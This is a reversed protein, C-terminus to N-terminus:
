IGLLTILMVGGWRVGGAYCRLTVVHALRVVDEILKVDSGHEHTTVM